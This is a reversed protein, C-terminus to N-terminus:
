LGHSFGVGRANHEPINVTRLIKQFLITIEQGGYKIMENTIAEFILEM